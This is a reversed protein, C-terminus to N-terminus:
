RTAGAAARAGHGPLNMLEELNQEPTRGTTVITADANAYLPERSKLIAVLDAMARTGEGIPRLDGQAIVRRMHEDPEARVWVTFCSSLLREFTAPETVISGSTALVFQEHQELVKELAERETRRFREQGFMEFIESLTAGSLREVERDLEIFPVRCESALLRGLTSKGGGRLGILAVRRRKHEGSPAAFRRQLMERAEQLASPPLRELLQAILMAEVPRDPRDDVMDEIPQGLARAIRRLLVISCNGQGSELQALYRESVSAHQALVKRAMGRRARMTRVREGLRRLYSASDANASPPKANKRTPKMVAVTYANYHM